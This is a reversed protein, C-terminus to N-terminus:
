APKRSKIVFYAGLAFLGASIWQAATLPGGFPNPGEPARYFEIIFRALPYLLLYLGIIEGDARRRQFQRYLVIFILAEAGAEYLQTPHLPVNLPTGFLEHARPNTFTVGWTRKCEVGFCCGASFCGLRGIAHGLALGPAYVDAAGLAPLRAHRMYLFAVVLALILGGYFVGGSQLTSLSFIERPHELYYGSDMVVMLIKAGIIGALGCYVGLNVVAERDLGARGALRSATWLAVLFALAVLVGYTPIFFDGIRVLEPHM